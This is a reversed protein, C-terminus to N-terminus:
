NDKVNFTTLKYLYIYLYLFLFFRRRLRRSKRTYRTCCV